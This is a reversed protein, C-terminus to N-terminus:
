DPNITSKANARINVINTLLQVIENKQTSLYSFLSKGKSKGLVDICDTETMSLFKNWDNSCYDDLKTIAKGSVGTICFMYLMDKFSMSCLRSHMLDIIKTARNQSIKCNDSIMEPKMM